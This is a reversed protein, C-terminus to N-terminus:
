REAIEFYFDKAYVERDQIKYDFLTMARDIIEENTFKYDDGLELDEKLIDEDVEIECYLRVKAM